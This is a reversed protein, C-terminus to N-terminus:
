GASFTLLDRALASDVIIVDALGGLVASALARAKTRGSAVIAVSPITRLDPLDISLVRETLAIDVQAGTVDFFRGCIQGIV